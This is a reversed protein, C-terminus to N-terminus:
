EEEDETDFPDEIEIEISINYFRMTMFPGYYKRLRSFIDEPASDKEYFNDFDAESIAVVNCIDNNTLQINELAAKRKLDDITFRFSETQTYKEKAESM